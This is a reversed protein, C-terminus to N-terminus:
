VSLSSCLVSASVSATNSNRQKPARTEVMLLNRGLLANLHINDTNGSICITVTYGCAFGIFFELPVPCKEICKAEWCQQM